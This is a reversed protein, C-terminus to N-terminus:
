NSHANRRRDVAEAVRLRPVVNRRRTVPPSTENSRHRFNDTLLRLESAPLFGLALHCDGAAAANVSAESLAGRWLRIRSCHSPRMRDPLALGDHSGRAAGRLGLLREVQATVERGRASLAAPDISMGFSRSEAASGLGSGLGLMARGQSLADLVCFDEAIRIPPHFPAVHVLTGLRIRSTRQAAASLFAFQSPILSLASGHHEALHYGYIGARDAAAIACLSGELHGSLTMGSDDGQDFIGLTLMRLKWRSKVHSNDSAAEAFCYLMFTAKVM